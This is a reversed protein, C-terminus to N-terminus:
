FLLTLKELTLSSLVSLIIENQGTLCVHVVFWHKSEGLREGNRLMQIFSLGAQAGLAATPATNALSAVTTGALLKTDRSTNQSTIVHILFGLISQMPSTSSVPTWVLPIIAEALERFVQLCIKVTLYCHETNLSTEDQLVASFTVSVVSLLHRLHQMFYKQSARSCELYMCVTQLDKLQLVEKNQLLNKLMSEREQSVLQPRMQSLKLLIKELKQFSSSSNCAGIQCALICCLLPVLDADSLHGLVKEPSALLQVVEDLHKDRCRKVTAEAFDKLKGAASSLISLERAKYYLLCQEAEQLM